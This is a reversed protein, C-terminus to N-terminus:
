YCYYQVFEENHAKAWAIDKKLNAITDADLELESAQAIAKELVEVSAEGIGMGDDTLQSYFNSESNLFEMLKKDHWLNFSTYKKETKIEIIRRAQISMNTRRNFNTAIFPVAIAKDSDVGWSYHVFDEM